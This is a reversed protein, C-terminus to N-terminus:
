SPKLDRHVVGRDHAHKLAPAVQLALDLVEPWPLRGRESLLVQYSPGDVYEMAFYYHPGEQGSEFFRVINPHDLKRLIDFERQFRQLFGSEAALETALVKVAALRPGSAAPDAAHAHYVCGMGGRGLERDIIWSGLRSGIMPPHWRRVLFSVGW